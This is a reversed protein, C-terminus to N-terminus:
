APVDELLSRIADAYSRPTNMAIRQAPATGARDLIDKCAQFKVRTDTTQELALKETEEAVRHLKRKFRDIVSATLDRRADVLKKQFSGQALLREVAPIRVDDPTWGLARAIQRSTTWGALSAELVAVELDESFTAPTALETSM